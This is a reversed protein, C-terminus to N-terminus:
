LKGSSRNIRQWAQEAGRRAWEDNEQLGQQIACEAEEGGIMGLAYYHFHRETPNSRRRLGVVGSVLDRIVREKIQPNEVVLELLEDVSKSFRINKQLQRIRKEIKQMGPGPTEPQNLLIIHAPDIGPRTMLQPTKEGEVNNVVLALKGQDFAGKISEGFGIARYLSAAFLIAANDGVPANMGIACDIVKTIAIAQPETYCANLVVLRINGKLTSFLMELSSVSVPTRKRNNDILLIEGVSNGHGSFHVVHPKHENLTQLLDDPRVAFASILELSDRHDAMRIKETIAHIEEDLSLINKKIPNAALFLVKIKSM